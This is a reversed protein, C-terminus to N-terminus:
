AGVRHRALLPRAPKTPHLAASTFRDDMCVALGLSQLATVTASSLKDAILVKMRPHEQLFKVCEKQFAHSQAYDWNWKIVVLTREDMLATDEISLGFSPFNLSQLPNKM